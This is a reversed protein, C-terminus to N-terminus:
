YNYFIRVNYLICIYPCSVKFISFSAAFRRLFYGAQGAHMGCLIVIWHRRKKIITTTSTEFVIFITSCFWSFLDVCTKATTTVSM